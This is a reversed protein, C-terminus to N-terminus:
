QACTYAGASTVSGSVYKPYTPYSCLPLSRDGATVTVSMGPEENKEVWNMLLTLRDFSNPIPTPTVTKGTGDVSYSTGSLGHGAQPM